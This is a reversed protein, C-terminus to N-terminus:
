SPRDRVKMDLAGVPACSIGKLKPVSNLAARAVSDCYIASGSNRLRFFHADGIVDRKFVNKDYLPNISFRTYPAVQDIRAGESRELDFANLKRVLDGLWHRPGPTGDRLRTEVDIFVFAKPDVSELVDKARESALFVGRHRGTIDFLPKAGIPRDVVFVPTEEFPAFGTGSEIGEQEDFLPGAPLYPREIGLDEVWQKPPNSWELRPQRASYESHYWVFIPDASSM